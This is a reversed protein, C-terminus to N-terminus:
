RLAWARDSTTYRYVSEGIAAGFSNWAVGEFNSWGGLREAQIISEELKAFFYFAM